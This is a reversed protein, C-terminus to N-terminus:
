DLIYVAHEIVAHITPLIEPQSTLAILLLTLAVPLLRPFQSIPRQGSTPEPQDDALSVLHRVRSRFAGVDNALFAGATMTPRAGPPIMRAIKVIASALDLGIRRGRRAAFEDAAAESAELWASELARGGPILVLDRCVRVVARKLNDNAIIHGTEHELAATLEAASLSEFVQRAIFLRPRFAGVVAILPFTHEVQYAPVDINPISVPRSNRLWEATLRNTARWTAVARVVAVVICIASLGALIALKVSVDEHGVRPEHKLYAPAFLFLVGGIGLAVPFTRLLFLTQAARQASWRIVRGGFVKWFLTAVLSAVTNLVLLTALVIALGLVFFM